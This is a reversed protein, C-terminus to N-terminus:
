EGRVKPSTIAAVEDAVVTAVNVDVPVFVARRAPPADEKMLTSLVPLIVRGSEPNIPNPLPAPLIVKLSAVGSTTDTWPAVSSIPPFALIVPCTDSCEGLNVNIIQPKVPTGQADCCGVRGKIDGGVPRSYKGQLRTCGSIYAEGIGVAEYGCRPLRVM